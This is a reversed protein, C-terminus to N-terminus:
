ASQRVSNTALYLVTPHEVFTKLYCQKWLDCSNQINNSTISVNQQVQFVNFSTEHLKDSSAENM